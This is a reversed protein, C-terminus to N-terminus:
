RRFRGSWAAGAFWREPHKMHDPVMVGPALTAREDNAAGQACIGVVLFWLPLVGNTVPGKDTMAILGLPLFACVALRYYDLNARRHFLKNCGRVFSLVWPLFLLVFGVAGLEILVLLFSNHVPLGSAASKPDIRAMVTLYDNPGMGVWVYRPLVSLAHDLLSLRSGGGPDEQFRGGLTLYAVVGFVGVVTLYVSRSPGVDSRPLLVAWILVAALGAVFNARGGSFSLLLFCLIIGVM